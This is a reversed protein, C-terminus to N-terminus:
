LEKKGLGSLSNNIKKSMETLAVILKKMMILYIDLDFLDYMKSCQHGPNERSDSIVQELRATGQTKKRGGSCIYVESPFLQKNILVLFFSIEM